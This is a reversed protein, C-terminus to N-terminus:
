SFRVIVEAVPLDGLRLTSSSARAADHANSVWRFGFARAEPFQDPTAQWLSASTLWGDLPVPSAALTPAPSLSPPSSPAPQASTNHATLSFVLVLLAGLRRSQELTSRPYLLSM